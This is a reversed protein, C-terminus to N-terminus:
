SQLRSRLDAIAPNSSNVQELQKLSEAADSKEGKDILARTLNQLTKEHRPDSKLAARFNEIARDLDRPSRLYYTLGLDMRVTTDAKIKLAQEYWKAADEFRQLDFTTDGLKVLLDFDDPKIKAAREYFEIAGDKRNIQFFLDAAKMQANFNSPENRAQGIVAMVEGQAGGATGNGSAGSDGSTPPHDPPLAGADATTATRSVPADGNIYNTGAYGIILGALLGIIAYLSNEKNM